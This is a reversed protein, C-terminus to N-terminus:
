GVSIEYKSALQPQSQVGSVEAEAAARTCPHCPSSSSGYDTSQKKLPDEHYLYLTVEVSFDHSDKECKFMTLNFLHCSWHRTLMTMTTTYVSLIGQWFYLQFSNELTFIVMENKVFRFFFFVRRFNSHFCDYFNFVFLCAFLCVAVVM